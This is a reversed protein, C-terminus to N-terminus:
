TPGAMPQGFVVLPGHGDDAELDPQRVLGVAEAVRRSAINGPRTRALVPLDPHNTTAWQVAYRAVESAYGHGWAELAFRYYLNLVPRGLWVGHRVGSFGVVAGVRHDIRTTDAIEVVWYGFGYTDWHALWTDLLKRCPGFDRGPGALNHVNTRPDGHIRFVDDLDDRTPRRVLLRGGPTRESTRLKSEDNTM